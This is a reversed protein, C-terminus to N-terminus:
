ADVAHVHGGHGGGLEVAEAGVLDAEDELLEVQDWVQRRKFVDHQRLVEVGHGVLGFGAGREVPYAQGGAEGM